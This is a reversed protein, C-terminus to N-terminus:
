STASRSAPTARGRRGVAVRESFAAMRDLVEWVDDVVNKGDVVISSGRPARLAVHLVSRDESVNIRDGRFM